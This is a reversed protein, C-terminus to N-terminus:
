IARLHSPPNKWTSAPCGLPRAVPRGESRHVDSALDAVEEGRAAPPDGRLLRTQLREPGAANRAQAPLLDRREGSHAHVVVVPELAAGGGAGGVAHEVREGAGQAEVLGLAGVQM